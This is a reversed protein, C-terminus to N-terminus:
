EGPWTRWGARAALETGPWTSPATAAPVGPAITWRGTTWRMPQCYGYAMRTEAVIVARVDVLVCAVTWDPGDTAKVQGAVPTVTVTTSLDKEAGMRAAGLFASVNSALPWQAVPGASPDAWARYVEVTRAMSMPQLVAVEIAALQGVAGEPTHSFGTPVKAAGIRSPGPVAIGPAPTIAPEGSRAGEASVVLMPEAALRDRRASQGEEVAKSPRVATPASVAPTAATIETHVVLGLGVLLVVGVVAVGAVLITLRTRSWAVGSGTGWTWLRTM